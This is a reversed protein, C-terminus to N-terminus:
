RRRARGRRHRRRHRKGGAEALAKDLLEQRRGAFAVQYGAKALAIASAKGIGTGAGTVVAVKPSANM